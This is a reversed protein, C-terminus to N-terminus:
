VVKALINTTKCFYHLANDIQVTPYDNLKEILVKDGVNLQTHPDSVQVVTCLITNEPINSKPVIFTSGSPAAEQPKPTEKLLLRDGFLELNLQTEKLVALPYLTEADLTFELPLETLYKLCDHLEFCKFQVYM